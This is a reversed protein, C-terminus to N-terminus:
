AAAAARLPWPATAVQAVAPRRLGRGTCTNTRMFIGNAGSLVEDATRWMTMLCALAAPSFAGASAAMHQTMRVGHALDIQPYAGLHEGVQRPM